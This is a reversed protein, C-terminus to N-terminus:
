NLDLDYKTISKLSILDIGGTSTCNQTVLSRAKVVCVPLFKYLKPTQMLRHVHRYERNAFKSPVFSICTLKMYTLRSPKHM